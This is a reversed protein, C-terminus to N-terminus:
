TLHDTYRVIVPQVRARARADRRRCQTGMVAKSEWPRSDSRGAVVTAFPRTATVPRAGPPNISTILGYEDIAPLSDKMCSAESDVATAHRGAM